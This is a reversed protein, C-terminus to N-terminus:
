LHNRRAPRSEGASVVRRRRPSADSHLGPESLRLDVPACQDWSDRVVSLKLGTWYGGLPNKPGPPVAQKVVKGARAWEEQISKPVYWTPNERMQVVSFSGIPTEFAAKGPGIPYNSEVRGDTLLFLKRQPLNILIGNDLDAPVVHRNDIKLTQGPTLRSKPMLGNMAALTTSEVANRAGISVLSDGRKVTYDSESGVMAHALPPLGQASAYSSMGAALAALVAMVGIQIM